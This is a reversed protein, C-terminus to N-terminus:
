ESETSSPNMRPRETLANLIELVDGLAKELFDIREEQSKVREEVSGSGSGNTRRAQKEQPLSSSSSSSSSSSPPPQKRKNIGSAERLKKYRARVGGASRGPMAIIGSLEDKSEDKSPTWAKFSSADGPASTLKRYRIKLVRASRGPMSKAIMRFLKDKSEAEDGREEVLKKLKEDESPTWAKRPIGDGSSERLRPYRRKVGIASRGPISKAIMRFLKDKSEAEDGQEEVLKMLKEDESPTWAKRPIGDGPSERLKQYRSKVGIASRGPMSKAIMRFLEDKSEAEDGQEEVLKKLKEDESPTWAKRLIGDGPSERLRHYRAEVGGASRGPMSEAIMGFLKDRSKAEDGQEEVLRKLKEDESPTWAKRPIIDGPASTLKRYRIQSAGASRGPMSEAIMRFLEDTSEAEDGQEEVLKKLKEDEESTWPIRRADSSRNEGGSKEGEYEQSSADSSAWELGWHMQTDESEQQGESDWMSESCVSM